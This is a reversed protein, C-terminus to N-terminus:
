VHRTIKQTVRGIIMGEEGLTLEPSMPYAPNLSTCRSGIGSGRPRWVHGALLLLNTGSESGRLEM